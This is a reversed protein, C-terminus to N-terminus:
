NLKYTNKLNETNQDMIKVLLDPDNILFPFSLNANIERWTDQNKMFKYLEIKEDKAQKVIYMNALSNEYFMNKRTKNEVRNHKISEKLSELVDLNKTNLKFISDIIKNKPNKSYINVEKYIKKFGKKNLIESSKRNISLSSSNFSSKEDEEFYNSRKLYSSEEDDMKVMEKDSQRRNISSVIENQIKNNVLSFNKVKLPKIRINLLGVEKIAIKKKSISNFYNVDYNNNANSLNFNTIKNIKFDRESSPVIYKQKITNNTSINKLVDQSLSRQFFNKQTKSAKM